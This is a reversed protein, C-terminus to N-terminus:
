NKSNVRVSTGLLINCLVMLGMAAWFNLLPATTWLLPIVANWLLMVIWAEFCLVGFVLALGMLIILTFVGCGM